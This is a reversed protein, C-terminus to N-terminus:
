RGGAREYRLSCWGARLPAPQGMWGHDRLGAILSRLCSSIISSSGSKTSPMLDMRVAALYSTSTAYLGFSPRAASCFFFYSRSSSSMMIPRPASPTIIARLILWSGLSRSIGTSIMVPMRSCIAKRNPLWASCGCKTSTSSSISFGTSGRSRSSRISASSFAALASPLRSSILVRSWPSWAPDEDPLDVVEEVGGVPLGSFVQMWHPVHEPVQGTAEPPNMFWVGRRIMAIIRAFRFSSVSM